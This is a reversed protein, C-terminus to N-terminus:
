ISRCATQLDALYASAQVAGGLRPCRSAACGTRDSAMRRPILPHFPIALRLDLHVGQTLHEPLSLLAVPLSGTVDGLGGVKVFPAAEAACVSIRLTQKNM